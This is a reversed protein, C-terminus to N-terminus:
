GGCVAGCTDRMCMGLAEFEAVGTPTVGTASKCSDLCTTDIVLCMALCGNYAICGPDHFCTDQEPKCAHDQCTGCDEAMDVGSTAMDARMALDVTAMDAAGMDHTAGGGGCAGLLAAAGIAVLGAWQMKM